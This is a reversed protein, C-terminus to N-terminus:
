SISRNEQFRTDVNYRQLGDWWRLRVNVYVIVLVSPIYSTTVHFHCQAGKTVILIIVLAQDSNMAVSGSSGPEM